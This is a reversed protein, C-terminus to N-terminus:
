RRLDSATPQAVDPPSEIFWIEVPRRDMKFHIGTQDSINKLLEDRAGPARTQEPKVYVHWWFQKDKPIAENIAKVGLIDGLDYVFQSTSGGTGSLGDGTRKGVYVAVNDHMERPLTHIQITGTAILVDRDVTRRVFRIQRSFDRALIEQLAGM